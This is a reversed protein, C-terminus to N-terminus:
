EDEENKVDGQQMHLKESSQLPQRAPPFRGSTLRNRKGPNPPLKPFPSALNLKSGNQLSDETASNKRAKGVSSSLTKEWFTSYMMLTSPQLFVPTISDPTNRRLSQAEKTIILFTRPPTYSLTSGEESGSRPAGASRLQWLTHGARQM